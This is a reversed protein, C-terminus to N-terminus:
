KWGWSSRQQKWSRQGFGGSHSSSNYPRKGKGKAKGKSKGKGTPCLIILAYCGLPHLAVHMLSAQLSAKEKEQAKPAVGRPTTKTSLCKVASKATIRMTNSSCRVFLLSLSACWPRSKRKAKATELAEQDIHRAAVEVVFSTDELRTKRAWEVRTAQPCM